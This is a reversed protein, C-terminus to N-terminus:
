RLRPIHLKLVGGKFKSIIKKEDVKYPIQVLARYCTFEGHRHKAGLDKFTIRRNTEAYVEVSDETPCHVKVEKQNVYPLDMTLVVEAPGVVMDYLPHISAASANWGTVHLQSFRGGPESNM